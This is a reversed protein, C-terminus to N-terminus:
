GVEQVMEVDRWKIVHNMEADFDGLKLEEATASHYFVRFGEGADFDDEQLLADDYQKIIGSKMIGKQKRDVVVIGSKEADEQDPKVILVKSIPDLRAGDRVGLVDEERMFFVPDRDGPTEGGLFEKECLGGFQITKGVQLRYDCHPGVLLLVGKMIGARQRNQPMLIGGKTVKRDLWRVLIHHPRPKLKSLDVGAIVAYEDEKELVEAKMLM